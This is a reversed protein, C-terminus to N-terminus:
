VVVWKRGEAVCGASITRLCSGADAREQAVVWWFKPGRWLWDRGRSDVSGAALTGTGASVCVVESRVRAFLVLARLFVCMGCVVYVRALCSVLWGHGVLLSLAGVELLGEGEEVLAAVTTDGQGVQAVEQAGTALVRGESLDLVELALHAAVTLISYRHAVM